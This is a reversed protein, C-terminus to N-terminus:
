EDESDSTLHEESKALTDFFNHYIVPVFKNKLENIDKYKKQSIRKRERYAKVPETNCLSPKRRLAIVKKQVKVYKWNGDHKTKVKIVGGLLADVQLVKVQSWKVQEENQYKKWQCNQEKSVALSKYDLFDVHSMEKVSYPEGCKRAARALAYYQDPTYVEVHKIAHDICAHVSDGENQTHGKELFYHTIKRVVRKSIMHLYMLFEFRNKNQGGCGDSFFIIEQKGDRSKAEIYRRVCTAVENGGRGAEGEHWMYCTVDRGKMDYMTFNFVSLKRKYYFLSTEGKPCPLVHQFDYVACALTEECQLREKVANKTQRVTDRDIVHQDYTTQM